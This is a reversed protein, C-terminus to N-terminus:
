GRARGSGGTRRVRTRAARSTRAAGADARTSAVAARAGVGSKTTLPCPQPCPAAYAVRPRNCDNCCVQFVNNWAASATGASGFLAALALASTLRLLSM